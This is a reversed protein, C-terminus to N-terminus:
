AFSYGSEEFLEGAPIYDCEGNEFQIFYLPRGTDSFGWGIIKPTDGCRFAYRNGKLVKGIDKTIGLEEALKQRELTTM